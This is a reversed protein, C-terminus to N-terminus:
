MLVVLVVVVDVVVVVAVVVVVVLVVCLFWCTTSQTFGNKARVRPLFDVRSYQNTL